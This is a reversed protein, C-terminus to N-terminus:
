IKADTKLLNIILDHGHFTPYNALRRLKLLQVICFM